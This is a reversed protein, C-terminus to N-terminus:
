EMKKIKYKKLKRDLTPRSIKLIKSTKTKNWGTRELTEIIQARERGDLSNLRSSIPGKEAVFSLSQPTIVPSREVVVAREIINELERVNNSLYDHSMLLDMAQPNFGQIEKKEKQCSKKLIDSALLPIDAPRERLPPLQVTVINLRFLLDQRFNGKRVEEELNESSASIVRVDVKRSRAEGVRRIEGEQLARLFKAQTAVKMNSIEDLFLTGGNAEEFLGKRDEKAGTFAGKRYGFLESEVLHDPIAGCDLPMFRKSRRPGSYHIAKAVLEKGTGSEGQILVSVTSPIVRELLSFVKKMSTSKGIINGFKYREQVESKLHNHNARLKEHFQAREIAIAGRNAVARCLEAKETSFGARKWHRMEGLWAMGLAKRGAALPILLVSQLGNKLAIKRSFESVTRQDEDARLIVTELNKVCPRYYSDSLAPYREGIGPEWELPRIAAASAVSLEETDEDFLSVRCFTVPLATALKEALGQLIRQSSLSASLVTCTDLLVSLHHTKNELESFLKANEVTSAIQSAIISLVRQDQDDFMNPKPSQVSLVGVLTDKAVLPVGLWSRPMKDKEEGVIVPLTPLKKKPAALDKILLGKGTRIIWGTLGQEDSLQHIIKEQPKGHDVLYDFHIEETSRDYLAIYFTNIGLLQSIKQYIISLVQDMKLTSGSATAIDNLIELEKLGRKLEAFNRENQIALAAQSALCAFLQQDEESFANGKKSEVDLVGIVKGGIILPVALESRGGPVGRIYRGNKKVDPLYIMKGTRAVATTIGKEHDIPSRYKQIATSYGRQAQTFIEKTSEDILLLACNDFHLAKQAIDLIANSIHDIDASLTMERSLEYVATLQRACRESTHLSKQM